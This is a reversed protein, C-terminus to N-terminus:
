RQLGLNPRGGLLSAPDTFIKLFSSKKSPQRRHQIKAYQVMPGVIDAEEVVPFKSPQKPDQLSPMKKLAQTEALPQFVTNEGIEQARKNAYEHNSRWQADVEAWKQETLKYIQSTVGYNDSVRAAQRMYELRAVEWDDRLQRCHQVDFTEPLYPEPYIHFNAHGLKIAWHDTEEAIALHPIESAPQLVHSSRMNMSATSAKTSLPPTPFGHCVPSSVPTNVMSAVVSPSAVTPSTLPSRLAEQSDSFYNAMMPPLLPTTALEQRELSSEENEPIEIDMPRSTAQAIARARPPSVSRECTSARTVPLPPSSFTRTEHTNPATFSRTTPLRLSSSRSSPASRLNVTSVSASSRHGGFRKSFHRSLRSTFSDTMNDNSRRRKVTREGPLFGDDFYDDGPSWEPTALASPFEASAERGRHHCFTTDCICLPEASASDYGTFQDDREAPDEVLDHLTTKQPNAPSDPNTVLSSTSSPYRNHSRTSFTPTLPSSASSEESSDRSHTPWFQSYLPGMNDDTQKLTSLRPFSFSRTRSM